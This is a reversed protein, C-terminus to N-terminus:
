WKIQALWNILKDQNIITENNNIFNNMNWQIINEIEHENMAPIYDLIKDRILKQYKLPVLELSHWFWKNLCGLEIDQSVRNSLKLLYPYDSLDLRQIAYLIVNEHSIPNQSLNIQVENSILTSAIDSTPLKMKLSEALLDKRFCKWCMHCPRRWEGRICSQAYNGISSKSNIITTSGESIGAVPLNKELGAASFITGYFRHHANNKYDRYAEHGIGYASELVTGFAISDLHLEKAMLILPVGNALDSPFGVPSRLHELDSKIKLVHYGVEKLRECAEVAADSRYQTQGEPPRDLFISVTEEPMIALAAMSDQGASFALGPLSDKPASWPKINESYNSTIKYRSLVSDAAIYFDKSVDFPLEIEKGIFPHFLLISALGIHDPHIKSIDNFPLEIFCSSNGRKKGIKEDIKDSKSEFYLKNGKFKCSVKM